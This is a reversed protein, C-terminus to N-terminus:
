QPPGGYYDPLPQNGPILGQVRRINRWRDKLSMNDRRAHPNWKGLKAGEAAIQAWRHGYKLVEQTLFDNEESNFPIGPPKEKM